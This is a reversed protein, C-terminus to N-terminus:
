YVSGGTILGPAGGRAPIGAERGAPAVVQEATPTIQGPEIEVLVYELRRGDQLNSYHALAGVRRFLDRLMDEFAPDGALPNEAATPIPIKM